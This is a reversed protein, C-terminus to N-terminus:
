CLLIVEKGTDIQLKGNFYILKPHFLICFSGVSNSFKCVKYVRTSALLLKSDKGIEKVFNIFRLFNSM